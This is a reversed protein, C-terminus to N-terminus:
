FARFCNGLTQEVARTVYQTVAPIAKSVTDPKLM